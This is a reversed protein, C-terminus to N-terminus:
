STSDNLYRRYVLGAGAGFSMSGPATARTANGISAYATARVLGSATRNTDQYFVNTDYGSEAGLGVHMMVGEALQIGNPTEAAPKVPLGQYGIRIEPVQAAAVRAGLLAGMGVTLALRRNM